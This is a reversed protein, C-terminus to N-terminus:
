ASRRRWLESIEDHWWSFLRPHIPFGAIVQCNYESVLRMVQPLDLRDAAQLRELNAEIDRIGTILRGLRIAWGLLDITLLVPLLLYVASAIRVGAAAPTAELAPVTLALASILLACGFLAWVLIRLKGYLHRTYFASELTM